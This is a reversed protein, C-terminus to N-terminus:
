RRIIVVDEPQVAGGSREAIRDALAAGDDISLNQGRVDVYVRQMTGEPLERTRVEIQEGLVRVLRSRGASSEVDYNKVEIAEGRGFWDPRVSGPTGSSVERGGLFSLQERYDRGLQSGVDLESQRWGPREPRSDPPPPRDGQAGARAADGARDADRAADSVDGIADATRATRSTATGVGATTVALVADPGLNGLWEGYRRESLDEWNIVAKGFEGPNNVAFEAADAVKNWEREHSEPDIVANLNSLRYLMVGGEGIGVVGEKVGNGFGVVQDGTWSAADGVASAADEYWPRDEEEAAPPAPPAPFTVMPLQGAAANVQAAARRGEQEVREREREARERLRALEERAASAAAEAARAEAAAAEAEDLARAQDAMSFAGGDLGAGLAATLARGRASQERGRADAARSEASEIRAVCDEGERQLRRVRERADELERAYSRVAQAAHACAEGAAAAAEGYGACRDRFSVSAIGQWSGVMGLARETVGGAAEFGGGAARFGSAAAFGEGPSGEPLAIGAVADPM